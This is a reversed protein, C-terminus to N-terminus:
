KMYKQVFQFLHGHVDNIFALYLGIAVGIGAVTWSTVKIITETKANIVRSIIDTDDDEDSDHDDYKAEQFMREKM